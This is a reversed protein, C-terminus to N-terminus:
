VYSVLPTCATQGRAGRARRAEPPHRLVARAEDRPTSPVKTIRVGTAEDAVALDTFTGGVDIGILV